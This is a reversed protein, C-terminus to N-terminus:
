SFYTGQKEKSEKKAAKTEEKERKMAEDAVNKANKSRVDRWYFFLVAGKFTFNQRGNERGKLKMFRGLSNSNIGTEKLFQSQTMEKTALFM